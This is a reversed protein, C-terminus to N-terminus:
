ARRRCRVYGGLGAVALGAMLMTAPEPITSLTLGQLIPNRDTFAGPYGDLVIHLMDDTATFEHTLVTGVNPSTAVAGTCCFTM